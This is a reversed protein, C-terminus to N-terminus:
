EGMAAAVAERLEDDQKDRSIITGDPGFLIICPIGSIGYLDTPITQANIINEWPLKHTAIARKTADPEDWVAVGLVDLGKDKYKAYLEKIVKTERICPGCWSAWFDVLTYKGKGVYDSLHRTTGDYTVEFDVFKKGPMTAERKEAAALMSRTRNYDAFSPYKAIIGRIDEASQMEGAKQLFLFYGLANDSNDALGKDLATTFGDYAKQRAEDTTANQFETSYKDFEEDLARYSDNLMTGFPLYNKNFSITGSELIFVPGRQGNITLRALVPEDISGTITAAQDKVVASDIPEGSDYNRMVVKAGESDAPAPFIVKYPEATASLATLAAASLLTCIRTLM